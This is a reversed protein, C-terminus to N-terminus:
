RESRSDALNTNTYTINGNMVTLCVKIDKIQTAPVALPDGDLVVFDAYKGVALTGKVDEEFALRANDSTWLRLAREATVRENPNSHNVACHMGYLPGLPTVTSDSGGGIPIGHRDFTAIADAREAREWGLYRANTEMGGFYGDFAPQIAVAVGLERADRLLQEDYLEFHEVRHRHDPRPHQGLARRYARLVQEVAADGVCHLAIQM